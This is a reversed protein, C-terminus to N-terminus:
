SNELGGKREFVLFIFAHIFWWIYRIVPCQTHKELFKFSSGKFEATTMVEPGQEVCQGECGRHHIEELERPPRQM